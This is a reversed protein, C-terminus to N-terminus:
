VSVLIFGGHFHETLRYGHNNGYSHQGKSKGRAVAFTAWALNGLSVNNYNFLALTISQCSSV